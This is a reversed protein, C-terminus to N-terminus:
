KKLLHKIHINEQRQTLQGHKELMKQEGDIFDPLTENYNFNNTSNLSFKCAYKSQGYNHGEGYLCVNEPKV